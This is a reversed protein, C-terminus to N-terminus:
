SFGYRVVGPVRSRRSAERREHETRARRKSDSGAHRDDLREDGEDTAREPLDQAGEEVPGDDRDEPVRAPGLLDEQRRQQGRGAGPRQEEQPHRRRLDRREHQREHRNGDHTGDETTRQNQIPRARATGSATPAAMAARCGASRGRRDHGTRSRRPNGIVAPRDAASEIVSTVTGTRRNTEAALRRFSTCTGSSVSAAEYSRTACRIGVMRSSCPRTTRRAGGGQHSVAGRRTSLAM